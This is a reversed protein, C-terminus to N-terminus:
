PGVSASVVLAPTDAVPMWIRGFSTTMVASRRAPFLVAVSTADRRFAWQQEYARDAGTARVDGAAGDGFRVGVVVRGLGEGLPVVGTDNPPEAVPDGGVRWSVSYRQGRTSATDLVVVRRGAGVGLYATVVSADTTNTITAQVSFTQGRRLHLRQVRASSSVRGHRRTFVEALRFPDRDSAAILDILRPSRDLAYLRPGGLTPGNAAFPLGILLFPEDGPPVFVLAHDHHFRDLATSAVGYTDNVFQRNTRIRDIVTPVTVAVMVVGLMAAAVRRREAVAVLAEAGLVVVPVIMPLYYQPGGLPAGDGMLALGWYFAYGVVFTAVLGVLAWTTARRRHIWVGALALLLGVVSGLMWVQAGNFNAAVADLADHGTYRLPTAGRMITHTGFGFTNEPDAAEIPFRLPNGSLAVNYAAMLVGFPVFGVVIWGTRRTAWGIRDRLPRGSSALATVVVLSAFPIGWLLADFPRTLFIGGLLAGGALLARVSGRRSGRVLATAAFCGLTLTILYSVFIGSQIIVMPAGLALAAAVRAVSRRGSVERALTAAALPVLAGVVILAPVMSRTAAQSGALVLPWGPPFEILLKGGRVGTLWPQFFHLHRYVPLWLRGELLAKAQLVYVPEDRNASFHPFVGARVVLALAGGLVM